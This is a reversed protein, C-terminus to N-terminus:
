YRVDIWQGQSALVADLVRQANRGQRATILGGRASEGRGARAEGDGRVAEVLTTVSEVRGYSGPQVLSERKPATRELRSFDKLMLSGREGVLELEYIDGAKSDTRVDLAIELGAVAGAEAGLQLTGTAAVEGRDGGPGDAFRVDARVRKVCREGFLEMLGFFFHTGVQFVMSGDARCFLSANSGCHQAQGKRVERLIGGEARGAVWPQVQWDRPWQKFALTLRCSSLSGLSGDIVALRRLEQM